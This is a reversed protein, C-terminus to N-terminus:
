VKDLILYVQANSDDVMGSIWLCKKGEVIVDVTGTCLFQRWTNVMNPPWDKLSVGFDM